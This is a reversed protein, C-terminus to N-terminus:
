LGTLFAFTDVDDAFDLLHPFQSQGFAVTELDSKNQSGVICQIKDRRNQIDIKVDDITEYFEFNLCAIRSALANDKRLIINTGQYIDDRNLLYMALNYDFNNAYKNNMMVSENESFVDLLSNFSYGVPVYLKSVSRCGMGYYYFVDHSLNEYDTSSESGDLVAVSSRNARIIHPVNQFYEQFYRATNDSGTAIVADYDKLKEVTEFYKAVKPEMSIMKELIFPLLINDKDSLKIISINNTLFTALVDHFGVLPINGAMILGISKTDKQELNYLSPLQSLSKEDLFHDRINGISRKIETETFWLNHHYAKEFISKWEDTVLDKMWDKLQSLLELRSNLNM